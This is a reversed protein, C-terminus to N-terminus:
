NTRDSFGADQKMGMLTLLNKYKDNYRVALKQTLVMNHQLMKIMETNKQAAFKEILEGYFLAFFTCSVIKYELEMKKELDEDSYVDTM